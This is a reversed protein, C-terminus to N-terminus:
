RGVSSHLTIKADNLIGHLHSARPLIHSEGTSRHLCWHNIWLMCGAASYKQGHHEVEYVDGDAQRVASAPPYLRLSERMVALTYKLGNLIAPDAQILEGERGITNGKGKEVEQTDFVATHEDRLARLVRPSQSLHYYTWALTSSATDHGALVFTKVQDILTNVGFHPHDFLAWDLVDKNPKLSLDEVQSTRIHAEVTPALLNHM